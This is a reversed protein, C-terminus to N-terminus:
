TREAFSMLVFPGPEQERALAEDARNLEISRRVATSAAILRMCGGRLEARRRTILLAQLGASDMFSVGSLDLFIRASRERMIRLLVQQLPGETCVDVAGSVAVLVGGGAPRVSLILGM